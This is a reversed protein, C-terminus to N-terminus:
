QSGGIHNRAALTERRGAISLGGTETFVVLRTGFSMALQCMIHNAIEAPYMGRSACDAPKSSGPVHHWCNSPLGDMTEAVRNGVFPKFQSPDERLWSLFLTSDTCTYTSVFPVRLIKGCHLLLKTVLLPRCLELRLISLHKMLPVKMKAIVLATHNISINVNTARIYMVGTYASESSDSFGHLEVSVVDTKRFIGGHYKGNRYFMFNQIGDNGYQLSVNPFLTMGIM